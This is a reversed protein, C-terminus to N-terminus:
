KCNLKIYEPAHEDGQDLAKRWDECAGSDDGLAKKIKGRSIYYLTNKPNLEIAKTLDTLSVKPNKLGQYTLMARNFYANDDKGNLAIAQTYDAFAAPYNKLADEVYARDRYVDSLSSDLTLVRSFDALAGTYDATQGYRVLGRALYADLYNAELQIAKGFDEIAGPYDKLVSKGQARNYCIEADNTCRLSYDSSAMWCVPLASIFKELDDSPLKPNETLDLYRLKKLNEPKVDVAEKKQKDTFISELENHGLYLEQLEPLGILVAPFSRLHNNELNLSKLNKLKAMSAPVSDLNNSMLNLEELSLLDFLQAPLAKLGFELYLSKLQLMKGIEPPVSALAYGGLSLDELKHLQSLLNFTAALDLGKNGLLSLSTLQQMKGADEGPNVINNRDMTLTALAPMRTIVPPIKNFKNGSLDLNMLKSLGAFEDPMSSLTNDKIFLQTLNTLSTLEVPVQSFENSSLDLISLGKLRSITSPLTKLKNGKLQLFNLAPLAALSALAESFDLSPNEEFCARKLKSMTLVADPIKKLRNTHLHLEELNNFASLSQLDLAPMDYICLTKLKKLHNMQMPLRTIGLSQLGLEELNEMDGLEPPLSEIKKGSIYLSRINKLKDIDAPISESTNITLVLERLTTHTSLLAFLGKMDSGNNIVLTLKHLNVFADADDRFRNMDEANVSMIFVDSQNFLMDAQFPVEPLLAYSVSDIIKPKTQGFSATQGLTFLSTLLLTYRAFYNM